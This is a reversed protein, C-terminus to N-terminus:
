GIGGCRQLSFCHHYRGSGSPIGGSEFPNQHDISRRVATLSWPHVGHWGGEFKPVTSRELSDFAWCSQQLPLRLEPTSFLANEDGTRSTLEQAVLYELETNLGLQTALDVNSRLADIVHPPNHGFVNSFHGQWFDLLVHGDVTRFESGSASRVFLPFPKADRGAQSVGNPFLSRGRDHCAQSQMFRKRYQEVLESSAEGLTSSRTGGASM